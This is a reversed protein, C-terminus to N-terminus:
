RYGNLEKRGKQEAQDTGRTLRRRGTWLKQLQSHHISSRLECVLQAWQNNHEFKQWGDARMGTLLLTIRNNKSLTGQFHVDSPIDKQVERVADQWFSYCYGRVKDM